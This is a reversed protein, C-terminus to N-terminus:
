RFTIGPNEAERMALEHNAALRMYEAYEQWTFVGKDVLLMALGGQEAKSLDIGTRMHKPETTKRGRGMDYAIATQIGHVAEQYSLGLDKREWM